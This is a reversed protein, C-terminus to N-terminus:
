ALREAPALTHGHLFDAAAIRKKGELQVELLELWTAHGCALLLRNGQCLLTGPPLAPATEEAAVRMRCLTFKKGRFIGYAGPWPQFGRWRNYLETATRACDMHGDERQLIPALTALANDQPTATLTGQQMAALTEVMLKAGMGALAPAVDVSTQEPGIQMSRQLLIDGTDLGEEMRMSTVGVETEGNAIAWQIPAAGRYKPLLSAHLNLCGHRPLALVWPPLIRGYAVVVILDSAVAALQQQLAPNNRLKEPQAIPLDHQLAAQKIASHQQELGRGSARDPQTLVLEVVHGAALLAHLTPVAFAPTGCFVLRM